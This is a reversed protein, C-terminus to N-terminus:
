ARLVFRQLSSDGADLRQLLRAGVRRKPPRAVAARELDARQHPYRMARECERERGGTGRRLDAVRRPEIELGREGASHAGTLAVLPQPETVHFEEGVARESRLGGRELLGVLAGVIAPDECEIWDLKARIDRPRSRFVFLDLAILGGSTALYRLGDFTAAARVDSANLYLTLGDTSPARLAREEVNVQTAEAQRVREGAIRRDLQVIYIIAAGILILLGAAAIIWSARKARLNHIFVPM